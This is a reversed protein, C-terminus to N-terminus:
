RNADKERMEELKDTIIKVCEEVEIDSTNIVIEKRYGVKKFYKIILDQHDAFNYKGPLKPENSEKFRKKAIKEDVVLLVAIDVNHRLFRIFETYEKTDNRKIRKRIFNLAQYNSPDRDVVYHKYDTAEM